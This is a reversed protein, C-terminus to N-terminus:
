ALRYVNWLYETAGQPACLFMREQFPELNGVTSALEVKFKYSRYTAKLEDLTGVRLQGQEHPQQELVLYMPESASYQLGGAKHLRKLLVFLGLVPEDNFYEKEFALLDLM